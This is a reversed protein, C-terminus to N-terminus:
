LRGRGSSGRVCSNRWGLHGLVLSERLRGNVSSVSLRGNLLMVTGIVLDVSEDFQLSDASVSGWLLLDCERGKKGVKLCFTIVMEGV